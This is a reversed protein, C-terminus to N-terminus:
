KPQRKNYMEVARQNDIKSLKEKLMNIENLKTEGAVWVRHDDSFAYYWDMSELLHAFLDWDNQFISVKKTTYTLFEPMFNGLVKIFKKIAYGDTPFTYEVQAFNEYQTVVGPNAFSMKNLYEVTPLYKFYHIKVTIITNTHNSNTSLTNM